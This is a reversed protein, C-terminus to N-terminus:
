VPAPSLNGLFLSFLVPFSPFSPFLCLNERTGHTEVYGSLSQDPYKESGLLIMHECFHALGPLDPPDGHQGVGMAVCVGVRDGQEEEENEGSKEGNENQAESVLLIQLGSPLRLHRYSRSVDAPSKILETREVSVSSMRKNKENTTRQTEKERSFFFPLSL